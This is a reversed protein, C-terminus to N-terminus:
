NIIKKWCIKQKNIKKVETIEITPYTFKRRSHLSMTAVSSNETRCPFGSGQPTAAARWRALHILVMSLSLLQTILHRSIPFFKVRKMSYDARSATSPSTSSFMASLNLTKYTETNNKVLHLFLLSQWLLSQAFIHHCDGSLLLPNPNKLDAEVSLATLIDAPVDSTETASALSNSEEEEM